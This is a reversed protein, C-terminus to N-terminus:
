RFHRGERKLVEKYLDMNELVLNNFNKNINEGNKSWSDPHINIQIKDNKYSPYGYKWQHMSDAFYKVHKPKPYNFYSKGYANLMDCIYDDNQELMWLKPRHLCFRDVKVVSNILNKQKLIESELDNLKYDSVFSCYVHLGIKHGMSLIEYVIERNDVSFLNYCTSLVQFFFSSKINHEADIKAIELARKPSYEVDHRLVAKGETLETFDVFDFMSLIKKYEKYSFM